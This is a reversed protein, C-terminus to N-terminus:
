RHILIVIVSKGVNGKTFTRSGGALQEGVAKGDEEDSGLRLKPRNVKYTRRQNANRTFSYCLRHFFCDNIYRIM